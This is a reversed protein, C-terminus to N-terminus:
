KITSTSGRDNSQALQHSYLAETAWTNQSPFTWGAENNLLKHIQQSSNFTQCVCTQLM